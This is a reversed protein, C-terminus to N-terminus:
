ENIHRYYSIFKENLEKVMAENSREFFFKYRRTYFPFPKHLQVFENSKVMLGQVPQSSDTYYTDEHKHTNPDYLSNELYKTTDSQMRGEEVVLVNKCDCKLNLDVELDDNLFNIDEFKSERIKSSEEPFIFYVPSFDWNKKFASMMSKNAEKIKIQEAVAAKKYGMENLKEIKNPFYHLRVFLCGDKELNTVQNRSNLVQYRSNCGIWSLSLFIISLFLGTNLKM